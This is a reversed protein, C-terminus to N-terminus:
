FDSVSYNKGQISSVFSFFTPGAGFKMKVLFDVIEKWVKRFKTLIVLKHTPLIAQIDAQHFLFQPNKDVLLCIEHLDLRKQM